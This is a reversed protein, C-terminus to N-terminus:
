FISRKITLGEFLNIKPLKITIDGEHIFKVEFNNNKLEYFGKLCNKFSSLLREFNSVILKLNKFM